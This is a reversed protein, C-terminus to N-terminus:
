PRALRRALEELFAAWRAQFDPDQPSAGTIMQTSQPFAVPYVGLAYVALQILDAPLDAPLDGHAQQAAIAAALRAISGRRSSEAIIRGSEQHEAAEWTIFRIWDPDKSAAHFRQVFVAGRGEETDAARHQQYKSALTEEFLAEKSAFYHYLLQKAVGARKAISEIRGGSFGRAAFEERAAELIKKRTRAADRFEGM